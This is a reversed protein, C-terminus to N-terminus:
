SDLCHSTSLQLCMELKAISSTKQFALQALPNVTTPQCAAATRVLGLTHGASAAAMASVATGNRM